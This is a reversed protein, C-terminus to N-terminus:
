IVKVSKFPAGSVSMGGSSDSRKLELHTPIFGTSKGVKFRRKDGYKDVVEVRKGELGTLQETLEANFIIGHDAYLKQAISTLKELQYYVKATGKKKPLEPLPKSLMKSLENHLKVLRNFANDFGLCTFGEGCKLTYLKSEKNISHLKTTNSM